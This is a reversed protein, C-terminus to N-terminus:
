WDQFFMGDSPPTYKRNCTIYNDIAWILCGIFLGLLCYLVKGLTGLSLFYKIFLIIGLGICYIGCLLTFIATLFFLTAIFVLIANTLIEKM